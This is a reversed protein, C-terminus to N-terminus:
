EGKQMNAIREADLREEEVAMDRIQELKKWAIQERTKTLENSPNAKLEDMRKAWIESQALYALNLIELKTM